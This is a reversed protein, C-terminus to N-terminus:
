TVNLEVVGASHFTRMTMQTGPEGVSQAAITGVSEGPEVEEREDAEKVKLVLTEAEDDSLDNRNCADTIEQVLKIPFYGAGVENVINQIEDLDM